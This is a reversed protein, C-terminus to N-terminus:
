SYDPSGHTANYPCLQGGHESKTKPPERWDVGYFTRLLQDPNAPFRQPFTGNYVMMRKTPFVDVILHRCHDIHRFVTPSEERGIYFDMYPMGSFDITTTWSDSKKWKRALEGGVFDPTVCIRNIGSFIHALGTGKTDWKSVMANAVEKSPIIYDDDITWPIVRDSRRYGLLTGFASAYDLGLRCMEEDFIRSMDRLIHICCPPEPGDYNTPRTNDCIGVDKTCSFRLCDKKLDKIISVDKYANGMKSISFESLDERLTCNDLSTVNKKADNQEQEERITTENQEQEEWITTNTYNSSNSLGLNSGLTTQKKEEEIDISLEKMYSTQFMTFVVWYVVFFIAPKVFRGKIFNVTPRRKGNAGAMVTSRGGGSSSNRGKYSYLKVAAMVMSAGLLFSADIRTGFLVVSAVTSLIAAVSVAFGKLVADAYKLMLSVVFGTAGQMVVVTCILIDFGRFLYSLFNGTHSDDIHYIYANRGEKYWILGLALIFSWTALQFNKVHLSQKIKGDATVNGSGKLILEFYVGSFGSTFCSILVACLGLIQNQGSTTTDNTDDESDGAHKAYYESLHISAVGLGLLTIAFYQLYSIHKKLLIRSLIATTLLKGQNTVQYLPVSLNSLAVFLLNNQIFYLAAPVILKASEANMVSTMERLTATCTRRLVHLSLRHKGTSGPSGTSSDSQTELRLRGQVELVYSLCLKFLESAAVAVCTLYVYEGKSNDEDDGDNSNATHRIKSYRIILILSAQQLVGALLSASKANIM